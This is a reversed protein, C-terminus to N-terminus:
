KSCQVFMSWMLQLPLLWLRHMLIHRYTLTPISTYNPLYFSVLFHFFYLSFLPTWVSVTVVPAAFPKIDHQFCPLLTLLYYILIAFRTKEIMSGVHLMGCAYWSHAVPDSGQCDCWIYGGCLGSLHCTTLICHTVVSSLRSISLCCVISANWAIM